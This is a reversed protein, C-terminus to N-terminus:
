NADIVRGLSTITKNIKPNGKYYLSGISSIIVNLLRSVYVSANGASSLTITSTDTILEFSYLNGASSLVARHDVVSGSLFLSGASSLSSYLQEAELELRISGASSLVLSVYDAKFKNKGEISGASSSSLEELDTMTLNVTLNFNSLQVGRKVGIVLKGNNVTTTIYELVNDNVTVSVQQKTGYTIYVKGATSIHVSYFDDLIRTETILNESGKIQETEEPSVCKDHIICSMNLSVLVLFTIFLYRIKM